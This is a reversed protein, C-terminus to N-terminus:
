DARPPKILEFVPNGNEVRGELVYEVKIEDCDLDGIARATFSQGDKSEYAYQFYSPESIEFDLANWVPNNSWQAYDVPCKHGPGFCCGDSPTPEATGKPFEANEVYSVRASKRIADLNLEAESRKSKKMYDSYPDGAGRAQDATRMCLKAQEESSAGAICTRLAATWKQEQCQIITTQVMRDSASMHRAAKKVADECSPADSGCGAAVLAGSCVVM